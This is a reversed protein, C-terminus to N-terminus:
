LLLVVIVPRQKGKYDGNCLSQVMKAMTASIQDGAKKLDSVDM